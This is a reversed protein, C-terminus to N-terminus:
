RRAVSRPALAAFNDTRRREGHSTVVAAISPRAALRRLTGAPDVLLAKSWAEAETGSPALVTAQAARSLPLASRPDIIHGIRREAVRGSEGFTASTSLAMNRLALPGDLADGRRMWIAWPAEDTPPGIAAISSEGFNVLASEVGLERLLAVIRDVAFGKGVGGLEISAGSALEIEDPAAFRMADRGVSARVAAIERPSPWRKEAVARRWLRVAPSVTVDFTGGTLTSLDRSLALVEFLDPPVAAAGRGASDNLQSLASQPEFSTLERDLRRAEDVARRIWARGVAESPADVTVDLMTGMVYHAERVRRPGAAAATAVRKPSQSVAHAEGAEALVAIAKKVARGVARASLTAGTVNVIDRSPLLPDSAAKGRYQALFRRSRIEGGYAERYVM